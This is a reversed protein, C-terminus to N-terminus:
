YTNPAAPNRVEPVAARCSISIHTTKRDGQKRQNPYLCYFSIGQPLTLPEKPTLFPLFSYFSFFIIGGAFHFLIDTPPLPINLKHHDAMLGKSTTHSRLKILLTWIVTITRTLIAATKAPFIKIVPLTQVDADRALATNAATPQLRKM